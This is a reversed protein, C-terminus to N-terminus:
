NESEIPKLRDLAEARMMTWGQYTAVAIRHGDLDTEMWADSGQSRLVSTAPIEIWGDLGDRVEDWHRGEWFVACPGSNRGATMLIARAGAIEFFRVGSEASGFRQDRPSRFDFHSFSASLSSPLDVVAVPVLDDEGFTASGNLCVERFILAPNAPAETPVAAPSGIQLALGTLPAFFAIM